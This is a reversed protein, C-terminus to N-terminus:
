TEIKRKKIGTSGIIAIAIFVLILLHNDIPVANDDDGPPGTGALNQEDSDTDYDAHAFQNETNRSNKYSEEESSFFPNEKEQCFTASYFFLFCLLLFRKM